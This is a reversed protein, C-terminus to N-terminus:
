VLDAAGRVFVSRNSSLMKCDTKLTCPVRQDEDRDSKNKKWERGGDVGPKDILVMRERSNIKPGNNEGDQDVHAQDAMAFIM